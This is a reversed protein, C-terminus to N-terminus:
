FISLATAVVIISIIFGGVYEWSQDGKAFVKYGTIASSALALITLGMKALMKFFGGAAESNQNVTAESWEQSFGQTSIILTLLLLLYFRKNM